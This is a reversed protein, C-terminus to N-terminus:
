KKGGKMKKKKIKKVKGVLTPAKFQVKRFPSEKPLGFSIQKETRVKPAKLGLEFRIAGAFTPTEKFKRTGRILDQSMELEAKPLLFPPPKKITTPPPLPSYSSGSSGGSSFGSSFYSTSSPKKYSSSSYKKSIIPSYSSFMKKYSPKSILSSGKQYSSMYSSPKSQKISSSLRAGAFDIASFIPKSSPLSYSSYGGKLKPITLPKGPIILPQDTGYKFVDIGVRVNKIKTYYKTSELTYTGTGPRFVSEIETKMLPVDAYGSKPPKDWWAFSGKVSKQGTFEPISKFTFGSMRFGKPKLFAVGPKGGVGLGFLKYGGTPSKLGSFYLSLDSSGYLGSLESTGTTSIIEGKWFKEPTTHFAGGRQEFLKLHQEKPATPFTKTGSIIDKGTLKELPIFDRGRTRWLGSAQEFGKIGAKAGAGLLVIDKGAVGMKSGAGFPSESSLIDKGTGYVFAGGLGIGAVGVAGSVIKGTFPSIAKAGGVLGSGIAGIGAGAGYLLVQKVPKEKIDEFIGYTIGGRFEKSGKNLNKLTDSGFSMGFPGIGILSSSTAIQFEKSFIDTGLYKETTKGIFDFSPKTIKESVFEEAKGYGTIIDKTSIGMSTLGTFAGGIKQGTTPIQQEKVSVFGIDSTGKEIGMIDEAQFILRGQATPDGIISGSDLKAYYGGGEEILEKKTPPEFGSIEQLSTKTKAGELGFEVEEVDKIGGGRTKEFTFASPATTEAIIESKYTGPTFERFIRGAKKGEVFFRTEKIEVDEVKGTFTHASEKITTPTTTPAQGTVGGRGTSPTPISGPTFTYSEVSQGAPITKYTKGRVTVTKPPTVKPVQKKEKKKFISFIGM